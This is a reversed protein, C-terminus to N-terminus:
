NNIVKSLCNRSLYVCLFHMLVDERHEEHRVHGHEAHLVTAAAIWVACVAEGAMLCRIFEFYLLARFHAAIGAVAVATTVHM